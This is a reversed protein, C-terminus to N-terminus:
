GCVKINERERECVCVPVCQQEFLPRLLKLMITFTLFVQKITGDRGCLLEGRVKLKRMCLYGTSSSGTTHQYFSFISFSPKIPVTTANAM